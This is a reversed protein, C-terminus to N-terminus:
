AWKVVVFDGQRNVKLIYMPANKRSGSASGIDITGTAGRVGRTHLVADLVPIPALAAISVRSRVM